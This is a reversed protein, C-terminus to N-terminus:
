GQGSNYIDAILVLGFCSRLAKGATVIAGIERLAKSFAENAQQSKKLERQLREVKDSTETVVHISDNANKLVEEQFEQISDLTPGYEALQGQQEKLRQDLLAISNESGKVEGNGNPFNENKTGNGATVLNRHSATSYICIYTALLKSPTEPLTPHPQVSATAAKAELYRVRNILTVLERELARKEPSPAGPLGLRSVDLHSTPDGRALTRIIATTAALSGEDHPM